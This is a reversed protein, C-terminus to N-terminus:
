FGLKLGVGPGARGQVVGARVDVRAWRDSKILWGFFAGEAAFGPVLFLAEGRSCVYVDNPDSSHCRVPDVPIAFAAALGVVAGVVAGQRWHSRRGVKMEVVSISARPVRLPGADTALTLQHDDVGAVIGDVPESVAGSRVRIKSGVTLPLGSGEPQEAWAVSASILVLGVVLSRM